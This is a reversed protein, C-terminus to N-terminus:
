IHTLAYIELAVEVALLFAIVALLLALVAQGRTEFLALAQTGISRTPGMAAATPVRVPAPPPAQAPEAVAAAQPEFIPRYAGVPVLIRVPWQRGEDAYVEDLVRRLRGAEVRVSPDNSPDFSDARGLAQTAITYAKIAEGRGALEEEVIYSLFAALKQSRRFAPAGLCGDLSHRVAEASVTETSTEENM